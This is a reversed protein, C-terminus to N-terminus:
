IANIPYNSVVSNVYAILFAQLQSSFRQNIFCEPASSTDSILGSDVINVPVSQVAPIGAYAPITQPTAM